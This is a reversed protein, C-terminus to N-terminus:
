RRCPTVRSHVPTGEPRGLHDSAYRLAGTDVNKVALSSVTTCRVSVHIECPAHIERAIIPTHREYAHRKSAHM